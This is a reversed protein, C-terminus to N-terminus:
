EAEDVRVDLPEGATRLTITRSESALEEVIRAAPVRAAVAGITAKM